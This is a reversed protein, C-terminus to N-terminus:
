ESKKIIRVAYKASPEGAALTARLMNAIDEVVAHRATSNESHSELEKFDGDDRRIEFCIRLLSNLLGAAVAEMVQRKTIQTHEYEGIMEQCIDNLKSKMESVINAYNDM